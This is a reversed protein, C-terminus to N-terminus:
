PQEGSRQDKCVKGVIIENVQIANSKRAFPKGGFRKETRM